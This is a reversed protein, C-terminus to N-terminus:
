ASPAQQKRVTGETLTATAIGAPIVDVAHTITVSGITVTGVASGPLGAVVTGTRPNAPDVRYAFVNPDSSVFTPDDTTDSPNDPVEVGKADAGDVTLDFEEDDHIQAMAAGFKETPAKTGQDVIPGFRLSASAPGVLWGFFDTALVRIDTVNVDERACAVQVAAELALERERSLNM